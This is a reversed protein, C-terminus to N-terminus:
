KLCEKFAMFAANFLFYDYIEKKTLQKFRNRKRKVSHQRQKKELREDYSIKLLKMNINSFHLLNELMPDM